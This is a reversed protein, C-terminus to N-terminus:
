SIKVKQNNFTLTVTILQSKLKKIDQPHNHDVRIKIEEMQHVQIRLNIELVLAQGLNTSLLLQVPKLSLIPIIWVQIIILKLVAIALM